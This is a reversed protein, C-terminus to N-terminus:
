SLFEAHKVSVGMESFHEQSKGTPIIIESM